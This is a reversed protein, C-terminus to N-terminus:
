IGEADKLLEPYKDEPIESLKKAGYKTILAKVEAQKGSQTLAALKARVQELTPLNDEVKEKPENGEVVDTLAEISDALSRLNEVVDLALKMKSM